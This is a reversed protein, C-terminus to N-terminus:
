GAADFLGMVQKGVDITCSGAVTKPTSLTPRGDVLVVSRAVTITGGRQGDAREVVAVDSWHLGCLEGRRLGARMALVLALAADWEGAIGVPRTSM